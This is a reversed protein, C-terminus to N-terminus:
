LINCLCFTKSILVETVIFNGKYAGSHIMSENANLHAIAKADALM